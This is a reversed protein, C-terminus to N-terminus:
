PRKVFTVQDMLLWTNPDFTVAAPPKDAAITFVSRKDKVELREVRTPPQPQGSTAIGIEVPMRYPEGPQTQTIEIEIQKKAEDFRWGGDFSPSTPRTLWEDFFWSLDQRSAEEMVRRLDATSANGDRYRRYYERIGAWFNETGIVGRLMHLVWGGKQYVLQNLV